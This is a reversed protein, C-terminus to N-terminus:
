SPQAKSRALTLLDRLPMKSVLICILKGERHLVGNVAGRSFTYFNIKKEPDFFLSAAAPADQETGLFTFCTLPQGKGEYITVLIKRGGVEQVVGGVAQLSMMSLDYGMPAFNGGVSRTLQEKVTEQGGSKVFSIAGAVIKEHTELVTLSIPEKTPQMLFFTPLILLVLLALVFAPRPLARAPWVLRKWRKPSELIEPFIRRDSLIKARLEAPASVSAGAIRIERKLAREQEYFFQCRPCAQLHGEISIREQASLENDVLATILERAEECKM